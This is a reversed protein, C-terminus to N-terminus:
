ILLVNIAPPKLLGSNASMKILNYTDQSVHLVRTAPILLLDLSHGHSGTQFNTGADKGFRYMQTKQLLIVM